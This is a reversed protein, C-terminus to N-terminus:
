SAEPERPVSAEPERPVASSGPHLFEWTPRDLSSGSASPMDEDDLGTLDIPMETSFDVNGLLSQAAEPSIEFEQELAYEGDDPMGQEDTAPAQTPVVPEGTVRDVITGICSRPIHGQDRTDRVGETLWVGQGSYRWIGGIALFAEANVHVITDTGGRLGAQDGDDDLIAVCHLDARRRGPYLGQRDINQANERFTGHMIWKQWRPHSPVMREHLADLDLM